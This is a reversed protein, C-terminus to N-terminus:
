WAKGFVNEVKGAVFIVCLPAADQSLSCLNGEPRAAITLHKQDRATM